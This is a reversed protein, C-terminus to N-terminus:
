FKDRDTKQIPCNRVKLLHAFKGDGKMKPTNPSHASAGGEVRVDRLRPQPADHRPREGNKKMKKGRAAAMYKWIQIFFINPRSPISAERRAFGVNPLDPM